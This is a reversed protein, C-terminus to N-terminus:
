DERGYWWLLLGCETVVLTDQGSGM